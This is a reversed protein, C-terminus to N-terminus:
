FIDRGIIQKEDETQVEKKPQRFSPMVDRCLAVSLRRLLANHTGRVRM